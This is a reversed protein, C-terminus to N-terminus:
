LGSLGSLNKEEGIFFWFYNETMLSRSAVVAKYFLQSSSVSTILLVCSSVQNYNQHTNTESYLIHEDTAQLASEIAGSINVPHIIFVIQSM